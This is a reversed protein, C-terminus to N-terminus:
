SLPVLDVHFCDKVHLRAVSIVPMEDRPNFLSFRLTKPADRCVLFLNPAKEARRLRFHYGNMFSVGDNKEPKELLKLTFQTAQDWVPNLICRRM